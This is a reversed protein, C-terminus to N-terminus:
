WNQLLWYGTDNATGPKFVIYGTGAGAFVTTAAWANPTSSTSIASIGSIAVNTSASNSYLFLSTINNTTNSGNTIYGHMTRPYWATNTTDVTISGTFGLPKWTGGGYTTGENVEVVPASQLVLGTAYDPTRTLAAFNAGIGAANPTGVFYVGNQATNTQGVLLVRDGQLAAVSGTSDYVVNANATNVNTTGVFRVSRDVLTQRAFNYLTNTTVFDNNGDSCSSTIKLYCPQQPLFITTSFTQSSAFVFGNLPGYDSQISLNWLATGTSSQLAITLANGPTVYAVSGATLNVAAAPGDAYSITSTASM